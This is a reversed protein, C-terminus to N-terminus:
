MIKLKLIVVLPEKRPSLAAPALLQYNLRWWIIGLNLIRAAIGGNGM